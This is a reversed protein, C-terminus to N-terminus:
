CSFSALPGIQQGLGTIGGSGNKLFALLATSVSNSTQTTFTVQCLLEVFISNKYYFRNLKTIDSCTQEVRVRLFGRLM